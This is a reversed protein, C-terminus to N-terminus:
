WALLEDGSTASLFAVPAKAQPCNGFCQISEPGAEKARQLSLEAERLVVVPSRGESSSIGFCASMRIAEGAVHFPTAFVETRLREALLVADVTSCGPLIMLFEDKGARGLVDYSRLLRQTREVVKCLLADCAETGLRSNWHGFDDVDLLLLCLPTKMRQVRDTERFLLSLMSSRNYVRTLPDVQADLATETRLRDLDRMRHYSRLVAEVRIRWHLNQPSRPILDDLVGESLRAAWEDNVRDAMLVIPYRYGGAASRAAALLQGLPIGPLEMDLLVLDPLQPSQLAALTAEGSLVVRVTAGSAALVPELTALLAPDHSALLLTSPQEALM